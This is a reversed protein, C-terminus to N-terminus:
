SHTWFLSPKMWRMSRVTLKVPGRESSCSVRRWSIACLHGMWLVSDESIRMTQIFPPKIDDTTESRDLPQFRSAAKCLFDTNDTDLNKSRLLLMNIAGVGRLSGAGDPAAHLELCGFCM